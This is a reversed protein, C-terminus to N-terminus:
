QGYFAAAAPHLPLAGTNPANEISIQRASNNVAQFEALNDFMATLVADVIEDDMDVQTILVNMQGVFVIESGLSYIDEPITVATYHPNAETVAELGAADFQLPILDHTALAQMVGSTPYGALAFAADVNGDTLQSFGDSYSLYSPVIDDITMGHAALLVNMMAITGGGAPGVAVKKGRLDALSEVGTGDMTFMHLVSPYMAALGLVDQPSDYPGTGTYAASGLAINTIAFEVDRSDILRPNQIGGETVVPVMTLGEAYDNILNAIGQGVPYYAGGMSATGIRLEEVMAGEQDGAFAAGVLAVLMLSVILIKKM